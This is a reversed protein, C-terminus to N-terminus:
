KTKLVCLYFFNPFPCVYIAYINITAHIEFYSGQRDNHCIDWDFEGWGDVDASDAVLM